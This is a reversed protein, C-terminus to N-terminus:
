QTGQGAGPGWLPPALERNWRQWADALERVRAAESSALNRREGIDNSLNYLEAGTLDFPAPSPQVPGESTQPRSALLADRSAGGEGRRDSVAAPQRRGPALRSRRRHRSGRARHAPHRAARGPARRHRWRGPTGELSPCVSGRLPANSSGNITTGAMTPGGNDNLFVILTNDEIQESVITAM